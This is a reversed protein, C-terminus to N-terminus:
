RQYRVPASQLISGSSATVRSTLYDLLTKIGDANWQLEENELVARQPLTAIIMYAAEVKNRATAYDGAEQAIGAEDMSTNIREIKAAISM